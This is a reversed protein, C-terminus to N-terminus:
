SRTRWARPSSTPPGRRWTTTTTSSWAAEGTCWRTSGPSTATCSATWRLDRGGRPGGRDRRVRRIHRIPRVRPAAHTGLLDPDAPGAPHLEGAPQVRRVLRVTVHHRDAPHRPHRGGRHHIGAIRP